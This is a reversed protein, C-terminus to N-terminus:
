TTLTRLEGRLVGAVTRVFLAVIIITALALLVLATANVLTGPMASAVRLAAIACGALPFSVAWWSVRFPCCQALYRLRWLLVPLMFLTLMFLSQAFLDVHGVTAIYAATGVAFPAVMILLSPQLNAPLPAQFVLRSFIMTFLPVAFFLGIAISWVAVGHLADLGLVPMALPVDLVGLVPVIWAPTAHEPQQRNGLWRDLMVWGLATMGVAGVAWMSRALSLNYPALVSPLLLLSAWFTAFLNGAIPHMFEDRVAQPSDVAKVVYGTGVLLFVIVAVAGICESLWAWAGFQTHALSWATSLGSLGMASGFMGVPLYALSARFQATSTPATVHNQM